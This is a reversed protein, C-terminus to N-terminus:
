VYCSGKVHEYFYSLNIFVSTNFDGAINVVIGLYAIDGINVTIFVITASSLLVWYIHNFCGCYILHALEDYIVKIFENAILNKSQWSLM